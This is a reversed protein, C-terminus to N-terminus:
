GPAWARLMERKGPPGPLREVSAGTAILARRVDGKACYTVLCGGPTLRRVLDSLFQNTWLAPSVNPSFADHYIRHFRIPGSVAESADRLRLALRVCGHSLSLQEAVTPASAQAALAQALHTAIAPHDLHSRHQLKEFLGVGILRNEYATYDLECGHRIARDATLLFNLGSGFGIELVRTAQAARLRDEVESGDVFVHLSETLAGNRSHFSEEGDRQLTRSGDGTIVLTDTLDHTEFRNHARESSGNCHRWTM